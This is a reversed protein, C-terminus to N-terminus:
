RSRSTPSTSTRSARWSSPSPTTTTPPSPPTRSLTPSRRSSAFGSRASRSPTPATPSIRDPLDERPTAPSRLQLDPHSPQQAHQQLHSGRHPRAYCHRQRQGGRLAQQRVVPQPHPRTPRPRPRTPHTPPQLIWAVIRYPSSTPLVPAASPRSASADGALPATDAENFDRGSADANFDTITYSPASSMPSSGGTPAVPTRHAPLTTTAPIANRHESVLSPLFVIRGAVHKTPTRRDRLAQDILSSRM